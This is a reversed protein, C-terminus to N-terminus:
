LDAIQQHVEEKTKTISAELKDSIVKKDSKEFMAYENTIQVFEEKLKEKEQEWSADKNKDQQM